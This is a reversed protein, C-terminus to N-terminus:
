LSKGRRHCPSNQLRGRGARGSLFLLFVTPLFIKVHESNLAYINRDVGCRRGGRGAAPKGWIEGGPSGGGGPRGPPRSASVAAPRGPWRGALVAGARTGESRGDFRFSPFLDHGRTDDVGVGDLIAVLDMGGILAHAGFQAVGDPHAVVDLTGDGDELLDALAGGAGLGAVALHRHHVDVVARHFALQVVVIGAVPQILEVLQLDLVVLARHQGIGAGVRQAALGVFQDDGLEVLGGVVGLVAGGAEGLVLHQRGELRQAVGVDGVVAFAVGDDAPLLPRVQHLDLFEGVREIEALVFQRPLAGLGLLPQAGQPHGMGAQGLVGSNAVAVPVVLGGDAM